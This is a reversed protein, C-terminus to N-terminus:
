GATTSARVARHRRQTYFRDSRAPTAPCRSARAAVRARRQGRPRPRDRGHRRVVGPDGRGLAMDHIAKAALYGGVRGAKINVIECAGYDILSEANDVSLVSEDLCVPTRMREALLKHGLYDEEHIPQEILLLDFEDLAACTTSTTAALLGPQRRGAAPHRPLTERISARRCSTGAPSSRSSSASTATTSTATRGRGRPHRALRRGPHRDIVGCDIETAPRGSTRRSRSAVPACSRTSSRGARARGRAM